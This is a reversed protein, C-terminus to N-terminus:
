VNVAPHARRAVHEGGRQQLKDGVALGRKRPYVGEAYVAYVDMGLGGRGASDSARAHVHMYVAVAFLLVLVVVMRVAVLVVMPMAKM